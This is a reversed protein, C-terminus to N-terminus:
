AGEAHPSSDLSTLDWEWTGVFEEPFGCEASQEDITVEEDYRGALRTPMGAADPESGELVLEGSRDVTMTSTGPGPSQRADFCKAAGTEHAPLAVRLREGDWRVTRIVGSETEITGVCENDCVIRITLEQQNAGGPYFQSGSAVTIQWRGHPASAALDPSPSAQPSVPSPQSDSGASCSIVLLAAMVALVTRV